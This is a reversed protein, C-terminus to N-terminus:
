ITHCLVKSGRCDNFVNIVIQPKYARRVRKVRAAREKLRARSKAAARRNIERRRKIYSMLASDEDSSM